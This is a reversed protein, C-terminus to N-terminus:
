LLLNISKFYWWLYWSNTKLTGFSSKSHPLHKLWFTTTVLFIMSTMTAFTMISMEDPFTDNPFVDNRREIKDSSTQKGDGVRPRHSCIRNALNSIPVAFCLSVFVFKSSFVSKFIPVNGSGIGHLFKPYCSEYESIFSESQSKYTM